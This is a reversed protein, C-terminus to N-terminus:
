LMSGLENTLYADIETQHIREQKLTDRWRVTVTGDTKTQYDITFCFPTGIEDMRRYRRGISGQEDFFVPWKGRLSRYIDQGIELLGDKKVLPFVAAKIPAIKPTLALYVRGEGAQEDERYAEALVMLMTRNLGASTEVIYPIYREKAEDDFYTLDKGSFKQHQTLDFDGRDHVGEIEGWGFPFQYEIDWADRAYHARKDPPHQSWRLKDPVVGLSIHWNLRRERWYDMWKESDGPKVFFQMEMQEFERTRFIFNRAVIENRFAKGIQAIGFPVKLRASEQVIKYDLYIGQCTEPRFYITNEEELNNYLDEELIDRYSAGLHSQFMLAFLRPKTLKGIVGCFPCNFLEIKNKIAEELLSYPAKKFGNKQFDQFGTTDELKPLRIIEINM